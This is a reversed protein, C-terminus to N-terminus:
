GDKEGELRRVRRDISTVKLATVLFLVAIVILNISM